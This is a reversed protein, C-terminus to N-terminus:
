FLSGVTVIPLLPIPTGFRFPFDGEPGRVERRNDEMYSDFQAIDFLQRM